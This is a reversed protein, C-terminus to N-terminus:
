VGAMIAIRADERGSQRLRLKRWTLAALAPANRM